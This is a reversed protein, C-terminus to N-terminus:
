KMVYNDPTTGRMFRALDASNFTGYRKPSEYGAWRMWRSRMIEEIQEPSFGRRALMRCCARWGKPTYSGSSYAGGEGFPMGTSKAIADAQERTAKM